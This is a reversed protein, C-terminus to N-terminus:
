PTSRAAAAQEIRQLAGLAAKRAGHSLIIEQWRKAFSKQEDEPLWETPAVGAYKRKPNAGLDLLMPLMRFAAEPAARACAHLIEGGSRMAGLRRGISHGNDLLFELTRVFRGEHLYLPLGNVRPEQDAQLVVAEFGPADSTAGAAKAIERCLPLLATCHASLVQQLFDPEFREFEYSLHRGSEAASAWRNPDTEPEDDAPEPDPRSVFDHLRAAITSNGLDRLDAGALGEIVSEEWPRAETTCAHLYAGIVIMRLFAGEASYGPEPAACLKERVVDLWEYVPSPDRELAKVLTSVVRDDRARSAISGYGGPAPTISESLALIEDASIGRMLSAAVSLNGHLTAEVIPTTQHKLGQVETIRSAAVDAQAERLRAHVSPDRVLSAASHLLANRHAQFYRPQDPPDAYLKTVRDLLSQAEACIRGEAPRGSVDVVAIARIFATTFSIRAVAPPVPTTDLTDQPVSVKLETNQEFIHPSAEYAKDASLFDILGNLSAWDKHVALGVAATLLAPESVEALQRFFEADRAPKLLTM